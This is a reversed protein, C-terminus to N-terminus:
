PRGGPARASPTSAPLEVAPPAGSPGSPIPVDTAGPEVPGPVGGCPAPLRTQLRAAPKGHEPVPQAALWQAVAGVDETSLRQAVLKMCDPAHANRNGTRFSGLQAALYDRPLGLLGPIAPAVGLMQAGHCQVCAPLQKSADGQMVLTRGRESMADREASPPSVSPAPPPYPLDLGAFYAAIEELYADSLPDLLNEMIAYHRRGERFNVLQNYLYGAPKGAIRPYYGDPGSRGEVGHCGTCAQMRQAITDEVKPAARSPTMSAFCAAALAWTALRAPHAIRQANRTM